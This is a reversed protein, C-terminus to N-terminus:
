NQNYGSCYAQHFFLYLRQAREVDKYRKQQEARTMEQVLAQMKLTVQINTHWYLIM